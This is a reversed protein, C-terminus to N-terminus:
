SKGRYKELIDTFETKTLSASVIGALCSTLFGSRVDEGPEDHPLLDISNGHRIVEILHMTQSLRKEVIDLVLVILGEQRDPDKSPSPAHEYEDLKKVSFWAECIWVLQQVGRAEIDHQMALAYGIGFLVKQKELTTDPLTPLEYVYVGRENEILVLPQHQGNKLMMRKAKATIDTINM